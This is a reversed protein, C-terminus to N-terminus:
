SREKQGDEDGGKTQLQYDILKNYLELGIDQAKTRNRYIMKPNSKMGVYLAGICNDDDEITITVKAM